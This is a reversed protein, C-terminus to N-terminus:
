SSSNGPNSLRARVLEPTSDDFEQRIQLLIVAGIVFLGGAMQLKELTEGLFLYSVLAATIPELTATISARTSRILNIGYLYLGFPILTGFVAHDICGRGIRSRHFTLRRSMRFVIEPVLFELFFDVSAHIGDFLENPANVDVSELIAAM